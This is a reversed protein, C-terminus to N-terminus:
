LQHLRQVRVNTLKVAFLFDDDVDDKESRLGRALCQTPCGAVPAGSEAADRGIATQMSSRAAVTATAVPEACVVSAM